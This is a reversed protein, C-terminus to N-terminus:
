NLMSKPLTDNFKYTSLSQIPSIITGYESGMSEATQKLEESSERCSDCVFEPKRPHNLWQVSNFDKHDFKNDCGWACGSEMLKDLNAANMRENKFKYITVPAGVVKKIGPPPPLSIVNTKKEEWTRTKENWVEIKRPNEDWEDWKSWYDSTIASDNHFRRGYNTNSQSWYPKPKIETTTFAKTIDQEKLHYSLMTDIELSIIEKYNIRYRKLTFEIFEKESAWFLTNNDTVCLFLPRDPNRLFNLTQEKKDFWVLAYATHWNKLNEITEKIGKENINFYLAESDTEYKERNDMQSTITGNHVGIINPFNFPHANNKTIKGQTAWRCHGILSIPKKETKYKEMYDRQEYLFETSTLTSKTMAAIFKDPNKEGPHLGIIGCSDPGRLASIHFLTDFARFEEEKLDKGLIGCIGCM